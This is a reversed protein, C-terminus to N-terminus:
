QPMKGLEHMTGVVTRVKTAFEGPYVEEFHYGSEDLLVSLIFLSLLNLEVKRNWESQSQEFISPEDSLGAPRILGLAAVTGMFLCRQMGEDGLEVNALVIASVTGQGLDPVKLRWYCPLTGDLFRSFQTSTKEGVYDRTAKLDADSLRGDAFYYTIAPIKSDTCTAIQRHLRQAVSEVAARVAGARTESKICPGEAWHLAVPEDGSITSGFQTLSSLVAEEVQKVSLGDIEFTLADRRYTDARCSEGSLSVAAIAAVSACIWRKM